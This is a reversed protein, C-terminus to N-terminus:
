CDAVIRLEKWLVTISKGAKRTAELNNARPQSLFQLRSSTDRLVNDFFVVIPPSSPWPTYPDLDRFGLFFSSFCSNQLPLLEIHRLTSLDPIWFNHLYYSRDWPDIPITEPSTWASNRQCWILHPQADLIVMGNQSIYKPRPCKKYDRCGEVRSKKACFVNWIPLQCDVILCPEINRDFVVTSYM